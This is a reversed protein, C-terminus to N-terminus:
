CNNKCILGQTMALYVAHTHNRADLKAVSSDKVKSARYKSIGLTESIHELTNGKGLMELVTREEDTLPKLM